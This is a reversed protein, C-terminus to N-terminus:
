AARRTGGMGRLASNLTPQFPKLVEYAEKFHARMVDLIRKNM